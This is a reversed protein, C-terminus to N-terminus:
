LVSFQIPAAEEQSYERELCALTEDSCDSKVYAYEASPFTGAQVEQHYAAFAYIPLACTQVGTM